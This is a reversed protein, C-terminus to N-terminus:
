PAKLNVNACPGGVVTQVLNGTSNHLATLSATSGFCGMNVGTSNKNAQAASIIGFEGMAIGMGANSNSTSETVMNNDNHSLDMGDGGNHSTNSKVVGNNGLLLAIGPGAAITHSCRRGHHM